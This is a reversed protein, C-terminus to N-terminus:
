IMKYVFTYIGYCFVSLGAVIFLHFVFHFYPRKAGIRLFLCGILLIAGGGLLCLFAEAPLNFYTNSGLLACILAGFIYICMRLTKFREFFFVTLVFGTIASGWSVVLMLVAGIFSGKSFVAPVCGTVTGAVAFFIATHDIMRFLKKANGQPLIHYVCSAFFTLATGICYLVACLMEFPRDKCLPICRVLIFVPLLFGAFHSLFNLIEESKKYKVLEVKDLNM